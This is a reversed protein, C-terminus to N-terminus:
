RWWRRWWWLTPPRFRRRGSRRGARGVPDPRSRCVDRRWFRRGRWGAEWGGEPWGQRSSRGRTATRKAQLSFPLVPPGTPSDLLLSSFPLPLRSSPSRAGKKKRLLPRRRPRPLRPRTQTPRPRSNPFASPPASLRCRPPLSPDLPLFCRAPLRFSPPPVTSFGLFPPLSSLSANVVIFTTFAHSFSARCGRGAFNRRRDAGSAHPCPWVRSPM